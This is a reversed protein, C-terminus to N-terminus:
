TLEDLPRFRAPRDEGAPSLWSLPVRMRLTKPLTVPHGQDDLLTGVVRYGHRAPLGLEDVQAHSLHVEVYADGAVRVGTILPDADGATRCPLATVTFEFGCGRLRQWQWWVAFGLADLSFRQEPLLEPVEVTYTEGVQLDRLLM